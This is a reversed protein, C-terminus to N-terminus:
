AHTAKLQELLLAQAFLIMCFKHLTDTVRKFGEEYEPFTERLPSFLEFYDATTLSLVASMIDSIQRKPPNRADLVYEEGWQLGRIGVGVSPIVVEGPAYSKFSLDVGKSMELVKIVDPKITSILIPTWMPLDHVQMDTPLAFLLVGYDPVVTSAFSVPFAFTYDRRCYTEREDFRLVHGYLGCAKIVQLFEFYRYGRLSSDSAAGFLLNDLRRTIGTHSAPVFTPDTYAYFLSGAFSECPQNLLHTRFHNIM